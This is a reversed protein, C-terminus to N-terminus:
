RRAAGVQKLLPLATMSPPPSSSHINCYDDDFCCWAMPPCGDGGGCRGIHTPYPGCAAVVPWKFEGCNKQPEGTLSLLCCQLLWTPCTANCTCPAALGAGAPLCNDPCAADDTGDCEEGPDLIGNGCEERHCDASCGDGDIVNGDDCEEPGANPGTTCGADYCARGDGCRNWICNYPQEREGPLSIICPGFFRTQGALEPPDCQEGSSPDVKGDGCVAIDCRYGDPNLPDPICVHSRTHEVWCRDALGVCSPVGGVLRCEGYSACPDDYDTCQYAGSTAAFFCNQQEKYLDLVSALIQLFHGTYAAVEFVGKAACALNAGPVYACLTYLALRGAFEKLAGKIQNM